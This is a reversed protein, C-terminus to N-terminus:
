GHDNGSPNFNSNFLYHRLFHDTWDEGFTRHLLPLGPSNLRHHDMYAAIAQAHRKRSDGGLVPAAAVLSVYEQWLSQHAECLELFALPSDPRVFFDDGSRCEEYWAPPDDGNVLLPHAQHSRILLERGATASEPSIGDPAIDIVGVVGKPGFRVFEMAYIPADIEPQPFFFINVIEVKGNTIYVSRFVGHAPWTSFRAHLTMRECVPQAYAAPLDVKQSGHPALCHLAQDVLGAFSPTQLDAAKKM